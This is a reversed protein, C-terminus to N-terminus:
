GTLNYQGALDLVFDLKSKTALEYDTIANTSTMDGGVVIIKKKMQYNMALATSWEFSGVAGAFQTGLLISSGGSKADGESAVYNGSANETSSARKAKGSISIQALLDGKIEDNMYRYSTNLRIDGLGNNEQDLTSYTTNTVASSSGTYITPGDSESKQSLKSSLTLDLGLGISLSDTLGYSFLVKTQM